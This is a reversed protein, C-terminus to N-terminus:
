SCGSRGSRCGPRPGYLITCGATRRLLQYNVLPRSFDWATDPQTLNLPTFSTVILYLTPLLTVVMLVALTPWLLHWTFRRRQGAFDRVRVVGPGAPRTAIATSM